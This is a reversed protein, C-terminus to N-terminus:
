KASVEKACQYIAIVKLDTEAKEMIEEIDDTTCCGTMGAAVSIDFSTEAGVQGRALAEIEPFAKERLGQAFADVLQRAEEPGIHPLM